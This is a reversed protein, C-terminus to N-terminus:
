VVLGIQHRELVEPSKPHGALAGTEVSDLKGVGRDFVAYVDEGTLRSVSLLGEVDGHETHITRALTRGAAHSRAHVADTPAGIRTCEDARIHLLTLATGPRAAVRVWLRGTVEKLAINRERRRVFRDRVVMAIFATAFDSSAYLM